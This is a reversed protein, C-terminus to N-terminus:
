KLSLVTLEEGIIIRNKRNYLQQRLYKSVINRCKYKNKTEFNHSTNYSFINGGMM